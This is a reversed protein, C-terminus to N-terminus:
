IRIEKRNVSLEIQSLYSPGCHEEPGSSASQGVSEYVYYRLISWVVCDHTMAFALRM